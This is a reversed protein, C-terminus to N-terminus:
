TWDVGEARDAGAPRTEAARQPRQDSGSTSGRRIALWTRMTMSQRGARILPSLSLLQHSLLIDGIDGTIGGCDPPRKATAGAFLLGNPFPYPVIATIM